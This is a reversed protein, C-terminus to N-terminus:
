LRPPTVPRKGVPNFLTFSKLRWHGDPDLVFIAECLYYLQNPNEKGKFKVNFTVRGSRKPRSIEEPNYEWVEVDDVYNNHIAMEAKQRLTAKTLNGVRFEDSIHAFVRDLDRAKLGEAMADISNKIQKSDTVILFGLLWVLGALGVVVGLGIAWRRDRTKWFVFLLGLGLIGLILYVTTPDDVLWTPM